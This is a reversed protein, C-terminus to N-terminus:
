MQEIPDFHERNGAIVFSRDIKLIDIPLNQLYSLSSYGTGFDDILIKIGRNKLQTLISICNASSKMLSTETIELKLRSYDLNNTSM